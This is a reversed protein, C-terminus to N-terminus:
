RGGHALILIVGVLLVLIGVCLFPFSFIGVVTLVLGLVLLSADSTPEAM